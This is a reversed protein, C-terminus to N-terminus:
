VDPIFAPLSFVMLEAKITDLKAKQSDDLDLKSTLKSAVWEIRKEFDKHGRCNGFAFAMVSVLGITTTIKLVQKLSIM